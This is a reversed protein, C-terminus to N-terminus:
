LFVIKFYKKLTSHNIRSPIFITDAVAIVIRSTDKKIAAKRKEFKVLFKQHRKINEKKLSDSIIIGFPPSPMPPPPLLRYDYFISDVLDLFIENM